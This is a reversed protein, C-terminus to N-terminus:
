FPRTRLKWSVSWLSWDWCNQSDISLLTRQVGEPITNGLFVFNFKYFYLEIGDVNNIPIDKVCALAAKQLDLCSSAKSFFFRFFMEGLCIGHDVFDGLGLKHFSILKYPCTLQTKKRSELEGQTWAVGRGLTSLLHEAFSVDAIPAPTVQYIIPFWRPLSQMASCQFCKLM